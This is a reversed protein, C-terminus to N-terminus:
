KVVKVIVVVILILLGTYYINNITEKVFARLPRVRSKKFSTMKDDHESKRWILPTDAFILEYMGDYLSIM